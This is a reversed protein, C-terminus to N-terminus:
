CLAKTDGSRRDSRVVLSEVSQTAMKAVSDQVMKVVTPVARWDVWLQVLQEVTRDVMLAAKM